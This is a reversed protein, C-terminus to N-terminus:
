GLMINAPKLDRHIVGKSHAYSITQCIDTFHQLLERFALPSPRAHYDRVADSLTRGEVFRMAYSPQGGPDEQLAYVPVIGPHQLQGTIIAETLFRQRVVAHHSRDARIEKLAVKRRLKEDWAVSVQGLGGQAHFRLKRFSSSSTLSTAPTEDVAAAVYDITREPQEAPNAM